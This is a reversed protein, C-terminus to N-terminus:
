FKKWILRRKAKFPPCRGGDKIGSRHRGSIRDDGLKGLGRFLYRTGCVKQLEFLGL